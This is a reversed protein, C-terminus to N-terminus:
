KRLDDRGRRRESHGFTQGKHRSRGQQGAFLIMLVMKRSEMSSSSLRMLRTQSQTVRHVTAQWAGRGMPNELCSYQLLYGHGGRPFRRSGPILGLDGANCASEKGPCGRTLICYTNKEKQSVENQIIPELNMWRM